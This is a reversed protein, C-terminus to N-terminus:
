LIFEGNNKIINTLIAHLRDFDNDHLDYMDLASQTENDAEHIGMGGEFAIEILREQGTSFFRKAKQFDQFRLDIFRGGCISSSSKLQYNDDFLIQSLFCRAVRVFM